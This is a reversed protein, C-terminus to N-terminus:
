QEAEVANIDLEMERALADDPWWEEQPNPMSAEGSGYILM